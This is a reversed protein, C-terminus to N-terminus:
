GRTARRPIPVYPGRDSRGVLAALQQITPSEFIDQVGVDVNMEQRIRAIARTATLSHGGLAFFDDHIGIGDVGLLDQWIQAITCQAPTTPADQEPTSAHRLDVDPLAARDVKGNPTLPLAELAVLRAPLMYDPLEQALAQRIDRENIEPKDTTYFAALFKADGAGRVVVVADRIGDLAALVSEIERLEIRHGRLKVQHDRRGLFELLHDPRLRVEDGTRYLRAGSQGSFPDPVFREATLRPHGLYGRAVGLGGILLEGPVGLPAIGGARDTVYTVTNALPSGIQAPHSPDVVGATSWITTETPGYVNWTSGGLECLRNALDQGLLEGGCLYTLGSEPDGAEVAIRWRSPTTQVVTCRNERVIKWLDDGDLDSPVVVCRGGTALPLFVELGAIDFSAPTWWAFADHSSTGLLGAFSEVINLLSRHSIMVGKPNGTSGSTFLVYALSDGHIDPLAGHTCAAVAASDTPDDICIVRTESFLAAFARSTVVVRVNADAIMAELRRRPLSPELPVYAGGAKMTGLLAAVLDSSRPLAVGVKDEPGVGVSRLFRALRTAEDDLASFSISRNGDVLAVSGGMSRTVAAFRELVSSCQLQRDTQNLRRIQACHSSGVVPLDSLSAHPRDGMAELLCEFGDILGEVFWDDFLDTAFQVRVTWEGERETLTFSFDFKAVPLALDM